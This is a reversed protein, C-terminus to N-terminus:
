YRERLRALVHEQGSHGTLEHFHRVLLEVVHHKKPLILPHKFGENLTSYQLRGGVCILGNENMEPNLKSLSSSKMVKREKSKVSKDNEKNIQPMGELCEYETKFHTNQVYQIVAEEAKKMESLSLPHNMQSGEFNVKHGAKWRLYSRLRLMYVVAKKLCFWSSYRIILAEIVDESHTSSFVGQTQGQKVEPDNNLKHGQLELCRPWEEEDAYLFYPGTLWRGNLERPTLGQTIDDAPNLDSSVHRWQKPNSGERIAAVRTAVYTHFRKDENNIYHLVIASDTWFVSEKLQLDLEHRIIGDMTVALTAAMLELRPLAVKKLPTLRSKVLVINCDVEGKENKMRLYTVVGYAKESADCFHHLQNEVVQEFDYPKYCRNIKVDEM